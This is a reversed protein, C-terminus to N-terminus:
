SPFTLGAHPMVAVEPTVRRYKGLAANFADQLNEFPTFGLRETVEPKLDSVLYVRCKTTISAAYAAKHGGLEFGRLIRESAKQGTWGSEVWQRFVDNGYGERCQAALIVFGGPKVVAAANQLAKVAQYLNQDKPNGGASAVVIDAPPGPAIRYTGAAFRCGRRHAIVPHGAFAALICGKHDVVANLVFNLGAISAAEEIDARVENLDPDDSTNGRVSLAHNREIAGYGAAGPLLAKAGGSFAAMRHPEINGTAVKLEAEAAPRFIEVPTGRSTIGLVKCDKAASSSCLCKCAGFIEAGVLDRIEGDGPKRHAGAAVVVTIDSRSLGGKSLEDIVHSLLCRTPALRTQDSVLIVANRKARALDRLTNSGCPNNLARSVEADPEPAPEVELPTITRIKQLPPVFLELHGFGYPLSYKKM